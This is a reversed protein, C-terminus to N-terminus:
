ICSYYAHNVVSSVMKLDRRYRGKRIVRRITSLNRRADHKLEIRNYNKAPKRWGAKKRMVLVVGKGDEASEVGVTQRNILGNYRQSNKNRLNNPETSFQPTGRRKVLFSSNNRLIMWQVDASM